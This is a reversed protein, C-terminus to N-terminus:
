DLGQLHGKSRNSCISKRVKMVVQQIGVEHVSSDEEIDMKQILFALCTLGSREKLSSASAIAKCQRLSAKSVFWRPNMIIQM